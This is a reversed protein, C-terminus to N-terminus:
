ERVNKQKGPAHSTVKSSGKQGAVKCAKVKTVLGLNPDHCKQYCLIFYMIQTNELDIKTSDNVCYELVFVIKWTIALKKKHM